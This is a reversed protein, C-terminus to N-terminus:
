NYNITVDFNASTYAGSTQSIGVSLTAGVTFAAAGTGDLTPTAGASHTFDDCAMPSGPGTLTVTGNGPLTIAFTRSAEGAVTFSAAVGAAPPVLAVGGDPTRSNDTGLLVTGATTSAAITGFDMDSVKTLALPGVITATATTQETDTSQAFMGATFAVLVVSMMLIKKMKRTKFILLGIFTRNRKLWNYLYGDSMTVDTKIFRLLLRIFLDM